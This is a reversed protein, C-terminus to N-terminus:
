ATRSLETNAGELLGDITKDCNGSVAGQPVSFILDMGAHGRPEFDASAYRERLWRYREDNKNLAELHAILAARKEAYGANAPKDAQAAQEFANLLYHFQEM